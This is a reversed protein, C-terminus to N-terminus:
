GEPVRCLYALLYCDEVQHFMGRATAVQESDFSGAALSPGAHNLGWACAVEFGAATLKARLEVDTYEHEHDPDVFEPQQLRTVRANPTDLGLYGGPRLVRRVEGLVTDAVSVPVHEISQGSYVLDVSGDPYESLDVMSHYRYRVPGLATVTVEHAASEQYLENREDSPLDIVVLDDFPYPYGMLVLAGTANGLATGGLDLIRRAPPLSRVFLMRSFHLSQGLGAFPTVSWWEGSAIAWDTLEQPTVAGSQLAGLYGQAATPDPERALVLEYVLDLVEAASRGSLARYRETGPVPPPAGRLRRLAGKLSPM